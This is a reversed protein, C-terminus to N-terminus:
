VSAGRRANAVAGDSGADGEPDPEGQGGGAFTATGGEGDEGDEGSAAAKAEKKDSKAAAKEDKKTGSAPKYAAGNVTLGEASLKEARGEGVGKARATRVYDNSLVDIMAVRTLRAIYAMPILSLALGPMLLGGLQRVETGAGPAVQWPDGVWSIVGDAGFEIAGPALVTDDADVADLVRGLPGLPRVGLEDGVGLARLVYSPELSASTCASGSSVAVDKLAMLLSEGEVYDMLFFPTGLVDGTATLGDARM